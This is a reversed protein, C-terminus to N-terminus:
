FRKRLGRLQVRAEDDNLQLPFRGVRGYGMPLGSLECEVRIAAVEAADFEPWYLSGYERFASARVKAVYHAWRPDFRGRM